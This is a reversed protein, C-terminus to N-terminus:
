KSSVATCTWGGPGPGVLRDGNIAWWTMGGQFNTVLRGNDRTWTGAPLAEGREGSVRTITGDERVDWLHTVDPNGDESCVYTGVLPDRSALYERISAGIEDPSSLDFRFYFHGFLDPGTPLLRDAQELHNARLWAKWRDLDGLGLPLVRDSPDPDVRVMELRTVRAGDFEFTWEEGIEVQLVHWRTVVACSIASGPRPRCSGLRAELGWRDLAGMWAEPFNELVLSWHAMSVEGEVSRGDVNPFELMGGDAAFSSRLSGLDRSNIADIVQEVVTMEVSARNPARSGIVFAFAAVALLGLVALLVLATRFGLRAPRHVQILRPRRAMRDAMAGASMARALVDDSRDMLAERILRDLRADGSPAQIPHTV